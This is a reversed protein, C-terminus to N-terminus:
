EANPEMFFRGQAEAWRIRALLGHERLWNIVTSQEDQKQYDGQLYSRVFDPLDKSGDGPLLEAQVLPRIENLAATNLRGRFGSGTGSLFGGKLALFRDSVGLRVAASVPDATPALPADRFAGTRSYNRLVHHASAPVGFLTYGMAVDFPVGDETTMPFCPWEHRRAPDPILTPAGQGLTRQRESVPGPGPEPFLLAIVRMLGHGFPSFENSERELGIAITEPDAPGYAADLYKRLEAVAGDRGMPVLLNVARIRWAMTEEEFWTASDADALIARIKRERPSLGELLRAPLRFPRPRRFAVTVVPAEDGRADGYEVLAHWQDSYDYRCTPGSDKSAQFSSMGKSGARLLREAKWRVMGPMVTDRIEALAAPLVPEPEPPSDSVTEWAM